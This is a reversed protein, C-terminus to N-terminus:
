SQRLNELAREALEREGCDEDELAETLPTVTPEDGIKGLARAVGRRVRFDEHTLVDM